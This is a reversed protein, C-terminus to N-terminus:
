EREVTCRIGAGRYVKNGSWPVGQVVLQRLASTTRSGEEVTEVLGIETLLRIADCVHTRRMGTEKALTSLSPWAELTDSSAHLLFAWLVRHQYETLDKVKGSKILGEVFALYGWLKPKAKGNGNQSPKVNGLRKIRNLSM